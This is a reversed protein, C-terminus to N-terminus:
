RRMFQQVRARGQPESWWFDVDVSYRPQRKPQGFEDWYALWYSSTGYMPISYYGARLVRDLAHTATILQQRNKSRILQAILADVVPSQIGITNRSSNQTAAESGWFNSQENGPSLSQGFGDIMMDFDFSRVRQIYQPADLVRISVQVGLRRVNRVFPLLVRELSSDHTIIEMQFPQQKADVLRGDVYRYGAQLLLARAKLLNARNFGSGDSVPAQWETLVTRQETPSLQPLLPKLLGLEATSPTGTAALESNHFYSQLREYQGNFIAKNMWEFDFAYTLAQRVRLDQFKSKRLNFVLAQMRVPNDHHFPDKKVLGQQVAPFNYNIVWNRAKNEQRFRYQGSKFGEFAIESSQYYVYKVQDFNYKGRNVALDNGWYNPDRQYTIQRGVDFHSVRYPGSGVPPTLTVADFTKNQWDARSWIPIEGVILGIELNDAHKFEFRVTLRDVAVVREVEAFYSRYAPAGESLLKDFTFVVDDATVPLGSHFKAKPNLQYEIWSADDPDYRIKQALRPYRAFPEDLSAETLTDFLLEMGSAAQGKSIWANFSDFRGIAMMSIQGGRPANPNAYPFHQMGEYLPQDNLAVAHRTVPAAYALSMGMGVIMGIQALSKWTRRM